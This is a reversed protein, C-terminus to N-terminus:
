PCTNRSLSRLMGVNSAYDWLKWYPIVWVRRNNSEYFNSVKGKDPLSVTNESQLGPSQIWIDIADIHSVGYNIEDVHVAGM